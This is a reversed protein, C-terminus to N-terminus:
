WRGDQHATGIDGFGYEIVMEELLPDEPDDAPKEASDMRNGDTYSIRKSSTLRPLGKAVVHRVTDPIDFDGLEYEISVGQLLPFRSSPIADDLAHLDWTTGDEGGFCTDWRATFRVALHKITPPLVRLVTGFPVYRSLDFDKAADLIDNKRPLVRLRLQKLRPCAAVCDALFNWPPMPGSQKNCEEHEILNILSIDLSVVLHGAAILLDRLAELDKWNSLEVRLTILSGPVLVLSLYLFHDYTSACRDFVIDRVELSGYSQPDPKVLEGTPDEYRDGYAGGISLRKISVVPLQELVAFLVNGLKEDSADHNKVHSLDLNSLSLLREPPGHAGEHVRVTGGFISLSGLSTFARVPLRAVRSVGRVRKIHESCM